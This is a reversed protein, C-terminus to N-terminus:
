IKDGFVPKKYYKIDTSGLCQFVEKPYVDNMYEILDFLNSIYIKTIMLKDYVSQFAKYDGNDGPIVKQYSKVKSSVGIPYGVTKLYEDINPISIFAVIYSKM